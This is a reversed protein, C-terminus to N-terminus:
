LSGRERAVGLVRLRLTRELAGATPLGPLSWTRLLGVMFSTALAFLAGAAVIVLKPSAGRAPPRAPEYVSINGANKGSLEDRALDTQEREAFVGAATELADRDRKLKHYEPSLTALQIQRVEAEAKQRALEQSRGAHADISAQANWLETEIAQYTPNPGVRRLGGAPASGLFGELQSIRRELDQVVRSEPKYRTLLQERELRLSYLDQASTSETYLDIQKPAVAIQRRLGTLRGEAERLSAQVSSLEDSLSGFLRTVAELEATFDSIRHQALFARMALDSAKLREEIATRQGGLGGGQGGSLVERRYDVYTGVFVNLTEAALQPNAHAFTLKLISSRPGSWAGFDRAFTELARQEVVYKRGPQARLAAEAIRPYLRSLGIRGIVREAIVPSRALEAEAQLVEEQQPFAGRGAEGIVPDFVYEQGLTVLIRSSAVYKTPFALAVAVAALLLPLFVLLM